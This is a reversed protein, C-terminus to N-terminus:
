FHHSLGFIGIVILYIAVFYNLFRPMLLILIGAILAILPNLVEANITMADEGHNGAYSAIRRFSSRSCLRDAVDQGGAFARALLKAAAM